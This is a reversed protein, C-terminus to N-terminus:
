HYFSLISVILAPLLTWLENTHNIGSTGYTIHTVQTSTNLSSNINNTTQVRTGPTTTTASTPSQINYQTEYRFSREYISHNYCKKFLFTDTTHYGTCNNTNQFHQYTISKANNHADFNYFYLNSEYGLIDPAEYMCVDILYTWDSAYGDSCQYANLWSYFVAYGCDTAFCEAHHGDSNNTTINFTERYHVSGSCVDGRYVYHNVLEGKEDCTYISAYNTNPECVNLLRWSYFPSNTTSDGVEMFYNCQSQSTWFYMHSLFFLIITLLSM